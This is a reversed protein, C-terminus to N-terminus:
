MDRSHQRIASTVKSRRQRYSCALRYAKFDSRNSAVPAADAPIRRSYAVARDDDKVTMAPSTGAMELATGDGFVHIGAVLAPM